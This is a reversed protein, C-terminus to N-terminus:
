KSGKYYNSKYYIPLLLLVLDKVVAVIPIALLVGWFGVLQGFALISLIVVGPHLGVKGGVVRPTIFLGDVTQIVFFAIVVALLIGSGQFNSLIVIFSLGGGVVIDLYPVFRCVGAIFGIAIASEMGIISFSLMYLAGLICAVVFQGKIVTKLTKNIQNFCSLVQGKLDGPIIQVCATKIKPTNNLVFFAVLPILVLNLVVNIFVPVTSGITSLAQYLKNTFNSFQSFEGIVKDFEEAKVLKLSVLYEQVVPLWQETIVEFARPALKVLVVLERYVLPLFIIFIVGLLSLTILILSGSAVTRPLGKNQWTGVLPHLLYSIFLSFGIPVILPSYLSGLLFLVSLCAFLFLLFRIASSKIM